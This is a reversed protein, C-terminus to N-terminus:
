EVAAKFLLGSFVLCGQGACQYNHLDIEFLRHFTTSKLFAGVFGSFLLQLQDSM